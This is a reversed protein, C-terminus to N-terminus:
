EGEEPDSPEIPKPYRAKIEATKADWDQLTAKSRQWDFFIPDCERSYARQRQALCRQLAEAYDAAPPDALIPYGDPGAIIARGEAQGAMLAAHVQDAIVVSDAATATFANLSPSYHHM